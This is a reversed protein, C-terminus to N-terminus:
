EKGRGRGFVGNVFGFLLCHSDWLVWLGALLIFFFVFCFFFFFCLIFVTCPLPALKAFGGDSSKAQRVLICIGNM